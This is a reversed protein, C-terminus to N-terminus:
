RGQEALISAAMEATRARLEPPALVEVAGLRAAVRRPLWSDGAFPVEVVLGGDESSETPKAGPWEREEFPEGAAFRLTAVPLSGFDLAHRDATDERQEFREGTARAEGIRDLRFTRWDGASRCWARLYWAGREAFLSHPEVERAEPASKEAGTHSVRVVRRADIAAALAQYVATDHGEISARVVRSVNAASDADAVAGMLRSTLPDDADFGSAQLAAVLATAEAVSLRVPGAMAPVQGFVEFTDGEVYVPVLAGPDYPAIGCLSLTVLDDAVESVSIGLEDALPALGAEGERRVHALLAVLRRARQASTPKAM